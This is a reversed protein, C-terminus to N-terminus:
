KSILRIYDLTSYEDQLFFWIVYRDVKYKMFYRGDKESYGEYFPEGLAKNIQFKDNLQLQDGSSDIAGIEDKKTEDGFYLCDFFIGYGGDYYGEWEPTGNESIIKELTIGSGLSYNCGKLIGKSALDIFDEDPHKMTSTEESESDDNKQIVDDQQDQDTAIADNEKGNSLQANDDQNVQENVREDTEIDDQGDVDVEEVSEEIETDEENENIDVAEERNCGSVFLVLIFLSLITVKGLNLVGVKENKGYNFM